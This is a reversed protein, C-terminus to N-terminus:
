KEGKNLADRSDRFDWCVARGFQARNDVLKVEYIHVAYIRHERKIFDMLKAKPYTSFYVDRYLSQTSDNPLEVAGVIQIGHLSRIETSDQYICVSVRQDKELHKCHLTSPKSMFLLTRCNETAAYFVPTSYPHGDEGITALGMVSHASFTRRLPEVDCDNNDSM